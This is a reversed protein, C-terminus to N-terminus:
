NRKPILCGIRSSKSKVSGSTCTQCPRRRVDVKPLSRTFAIAPKGPTECCNHRFRIPAMRAHDAKGRIIAVTEHCCYIRRFGHFKYSSFLPQRDSKSPVSRAQCYIHCPNQHHYLHTLLLFNCSALSVARNNLNFSISRSRSCLGTVSSPPDDTIVGQVRRPRQDQGNHRPHWVAASTEDLYDLLGFCDQSTHALM